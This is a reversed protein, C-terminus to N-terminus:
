VASQARRAQALASYHKLHRWDTFSVGSFDRGLQLRGCM